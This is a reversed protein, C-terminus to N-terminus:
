IMTLNRDSIIRINSIWFNNSAQRYQSDKQTISSLISSFYGDLDSDIFFRFNILISYVVTFIIWSLSRTLKIYSQSQNCLLSKSICCYGQYMIYNHDKKLPPHHISDGLTFVFYKPFITGFITIPTLSPSGILQGDDFLCPSAGEISQDLLLSHDLIQQIYGVDYLTKVVYSYNSVLIDELITQDLQM